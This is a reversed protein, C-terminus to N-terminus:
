GDVTRLLNLSKFASVKLTTQSLYIQRQKINNKMEEITAYTLLHHTIPFRQHLLESSLRQLKVFWTLLLWFFLINVKSQRYVKIQFFFWFFFVKNM